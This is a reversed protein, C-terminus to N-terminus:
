APPQAAARGSLIAVSERIPEIEAQTREDLFIQYASEAIAVAQDPDPWFVQIDITARTDNATVLLSQRLQDRMAVQQDGSTGEGFLAVGIAHRMKGFLPRRPQNGVLDLETVIRDLSAQRMIVASAQRSATATVGQAGGLVNDGSLLVTASTQYTPPAGALVMGCLSTVVLFTVAALKLHRRVASLTFSVWRMVPQLSFLSEDGATSRATADFGIANVGHAAGAHRDTPDFPAM